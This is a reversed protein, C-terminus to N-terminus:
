DQEMEEIYAHAAALRAVPIRYPSCSVYNLGIRHCFYVSERDGGQEGCIGIKIDPRRRRGKEVTMKILEGVGEFDLTKFPDASIIKEAVYKGMFMGTDDRSFGFTMQTLDNTGFSFFEAVEAMKDATIAARPTEIMTGYKYVIGALGYKEIVQDYVKNVIKKVCAIEQVTCTVPIMIEPQAGRGEIVMEAAAELIARVQMEMIEPYSIGLRVGRHGMMPNSEALAESRKKIDQPDVDLAKALELQQGRSHPVFEHLPPDLTRITVPKGDMVSLTSKIENKVFPFLETLAGKRERESTSLIMKQLLFLPEESSSSYFMHETRFLGIGEAGHELAILADQATDANARVGLKKYKDAIAMFKKFQPNETADIMKLKDEYIYGRSGNLTIVDGEKFVRGAIKMERKELHIDVSEAGVVCCKGWGRAVLAAHSTMGGRATLIGSAARMGEIDEPSTEERVLIVQKNNKAYEVADDPTFVIM